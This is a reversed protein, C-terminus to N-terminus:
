SANRRVNFYSYYGRQPTYRHRVSTLYYNGSFRQGIGEIKVVKGSRLDARGYCVGEGSVFSLAEANYGAKAM